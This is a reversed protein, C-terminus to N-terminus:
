FYKILRINQNEFIMCKFDSTLQITSFKKIGILCVTCFDKNVIAKLIPILVVLKPFDLSLFCNKKM